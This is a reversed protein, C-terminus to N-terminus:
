RQARATDPGDIPRRGKRAEGILLGCIGVLLVGNLNVADQWLSFSLFDGVLVGVVGSMVGAVVTREFRGLSPGARAGIVLFGLWFLMYTAFGLAGTESLVLLYLNHVVAITGWETEMKKANRPDVEQFALTFNNLGVGFVPDREFLRLALRNMDQRFDLSDGFNFTIRKLAMPALPSAAVLALCGGVFALTVVRRLNLLRFYVFLAMCLACGAAFAAWSGRSLTGVLAATGIILAGAWFPRRKANGDTVLLAFFVPLALALYGGLLNPHGLTGSSRVVTTTLGFDQALINESGEGIVGFRDLGFTKRLGTQLLGLVSQAVVALSLVKVLFPVDDIRLKALLYFLLFGGRLWRVWEYMAWSKDGALGASILGVGLFPAFLWLMLFSRRSASAKASASEMVWLAYLGILPLDSPKVYLGEAGGSHPAYLGLIYYDIKITTLVVMAALCFRVKDRVAFFIPAAILAAIGVAFRKTTSGAIWPLASGAVAGAMLGISILGIRTSAIAQM